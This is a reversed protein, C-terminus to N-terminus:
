NSRGCLILQCSLAQQKSFVTNHTFNLTFLYSFVCHSTVRVTLVLYWDDGKQAFNAEGCGKWVVWSRGDCTCDESPRGVSEIFVHPFIRMHSGLSTKMAPKVLHSEYGCGFGYRRLYHTGPVRISDLPFYCTGRMCLAPSRRQSLICAISGLPTKHCTLYRACLLELSVLAACYLRTIDKDITVVKVPRRSKKKRM